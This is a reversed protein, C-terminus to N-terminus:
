CGPPPANAYPLVYPLLKPLVELTATSTSVSQPLAITHRVDPATGALPTAASGHCSGVCTCPGNHGPDEPAPADHHGAGHSGTGPSGRAHAASPSPEAARAGHHLRYHYGNAGGEVAVLFMAALCASVIRHPLTRSM